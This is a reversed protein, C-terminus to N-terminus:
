SPGTGDTKPEILEQGDLYPRLAEPIRVSGDPQVHNELIAAVALETVGTASLTHPQAVRGGDLYRIRFRRAQYDTLTAASHTQRYEGSGPFWSETACAQYAPAALEAACVRVVRYPLELERLIDETNRQCQGLWYEADQPRCLVVQEVTHCPHAAFVALRIPLEAGDIVQDRYRGLAGDRDAVPLLMPTLERDHLMRQAHTFVAWALRAGDGRWYYGARGAEQTGRAPDLIGLATGVARHDRAEDAVVPHGERRLEVNDGAPTDAALLNPLRAWLQDRLEQLARVEEAAASMEDRLAQAAQADVQERSMAQRRQQARLTTARASAQRLEDEVTVLRDVEVDTGRQTATRRLLDPDTRLLAIDILATAKWV